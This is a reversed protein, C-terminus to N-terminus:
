EIKQLAAKAARQIDADPDNQLDKLAPIAAKAEKGKKALMNIMLLRVSKDQSGKIGSIAGEIPDTAPPPIAVKSADSTSKKCSVSGLLVLCLGLSLGRALWRHGRLNREM